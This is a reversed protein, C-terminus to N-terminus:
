RQVGNKKRVIIWRYLLNETLQVTNSGFIELTYKNIGKAFLDCTAKQEGKVVTFREKIDSGRFIRINGKLDFLLYDGAKFTNSSNNSMNYLIGGKKMMTVRFTANSENTQDIVKGNDDVYVVPLARLDCNVGQLIIETTNDPKDWKKVTANTILRQIALHKVEDKSKKREIGKNDRLIYGICTEMYVIQKEITYSTAQTSVRTIPKSGGIGVTQVNTNRLTGTNLNLVPLTNLNVGKGRIIPEGDTGPHIRLNTILGNSIMYITRNKDLSIETGDSGRFQYGVLSTGNMYRGTVTYLVENM